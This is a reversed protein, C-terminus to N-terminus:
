TSIKLCYKRNAAERQFLIFSATGHIQALMLNLLFLLPRETLHGGPAPTGELIKM